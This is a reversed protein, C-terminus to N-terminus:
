TKLLTTLEQRAIAVRQKLVNAPTELAISAHKKWDTDPLPQAYVDKLNVPKASQKRIPEQRSRKM